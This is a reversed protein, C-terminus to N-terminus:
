VMLIYPPTYTFIWAKKVEIGTAPSNDAEIGKRKLGPSVTGLVWQMPPQTPGLDYRSLTSFHINKIRGLNLSLVRPRGGQLSLFSFYHKATDEKTITHSHYSVSEV